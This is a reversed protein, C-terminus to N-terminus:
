GVFLLQVCCFSRAQFCLLCLHGDLLYVTNIHQEQAGFAYSRYHGDIIVFPCYDLAYGFGRRCFSGRLKRRMKGVVGGDLLLVEVLVKHDSPVSKCSIDSIEGLPM